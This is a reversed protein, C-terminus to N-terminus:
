WKTNRIALSGRYCPIHEEAWPIALPRGNNLVLVVNPNVKFIAELLEQQVGPLGLDTRSRGEGSQLGHEGLVMVVVDAQKAVAIAEAFGSKDTTNIKTEWVFQTRGVAVDAGKAILLNTEKIIKCDKM